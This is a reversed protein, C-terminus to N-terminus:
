IIVKLEDVHLDEESPALNRKSLELQFLHSKKIINKYDIHYIKHFKKKDRFFIYQEKSGFYKTNDVWKIHFKECLEKSDKESLLRGPQRSDSIGLITM